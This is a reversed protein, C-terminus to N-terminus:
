SSSNIVFASASARAFSSIARRASLPFISVALVPRSRVRFLTGLTLTISHGITFATIFKVIDMFRTLFFVVGFLFMLHDYGTVMHKAGLWLYAVNGGNKLAEIDELPVGHALVTATALMLLLSLLLPLLRM